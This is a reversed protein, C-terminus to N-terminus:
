LESIKLQNLVELVKSKLAAGELPSLESIETIAEDLIRNRASYVAGQVGKALAEYGYVVRTGQAHYGECKEGSAPHCCHIRAMRDVQDWVESPKAGKKKETVPPEMIERIKDQDPVEMKGLPGPVCPEQNISSSGCKPCRLGGIMVGWGKEGCSMCTWVM